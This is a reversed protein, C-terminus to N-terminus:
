AFTYGCRGNQKTKYLAADAKEFLDGGFGHKSFAIGVSVSLKPLEDNEINQLSNNLYQLKREIVGKQEAHIETMIVVFEDGGYRIPFDNSRFCEELLGSVKKLALDGTAHGYTDNVTKFNDVDIILFALEESAERYFEVLSNFASRNLLGTLEDREAKNKLRLRTSANEEYVENYTCALYNLEYSNCIPILKEDQIAEITIKLPNLVYKFLCFAISVFTIASSIVLIVLLTFSVRYRKSSAHKCDGIEGLLNDTAADVSERISLKENSYGDGFVLSYAKERKQEPSMKKEEESLTYDRIEKPMYEDSNKEDLTSVLAMANIERQMLSNSKNLAQEIPETAGRGIDSVADNIISVANERRRTENVEKFYEFAFGMEGTMVYQRSKASLLDSATQLNYIESQIKIYDDTIRDVREHSSYVSIICVISFTFLVAELAILFVSLKKVNLGKINKM